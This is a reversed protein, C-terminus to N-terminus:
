CLCRTCYIVATMAKGCSTADYTLLMNGPIWTLWESLHTWRMVKGTKHHRKTHQQSKNM